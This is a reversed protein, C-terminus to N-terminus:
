TSKYRIYGRRLLFHRDTGRGSMCKSAHLVEYAVAVNWRGGGRSGSVAGSQM